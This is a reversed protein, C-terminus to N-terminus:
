VIFLLRRSLDLPFHVLRKVLLGLLKMLIELIHKEVLYLYPNFNGCLSLYAM